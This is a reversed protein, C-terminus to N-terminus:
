MRPETIQGIIGIKANKILKVKIIEGKEPEVRRSREPSDVQVMFYRESRGFSDNELLIEATEGIFQERFKFRLEADLECLVQSRRKVVENNVTGQMSAAATGARKSFSFVHMKAFGTDKALEVTREFDEETEGPFGVIIDTTIAPRDLRNKILAVKERFEDATYQRCMRKLVANSGSQLSLHLHPMIKRNGCFTDLLRPTVDAPELSSLRIRALNPIEAMKDLLGALQDRKGNWNKRRVSEQGYAGLFIGTVVIEKHGADALAQAEQLVAEIPKNQVFPRVKPIICYSCFGDCGDQIKLFARTHGKFSTLKTLKLPEIRNKLKIKSGNEAKITNNQSNSAAAKGNLIQSLTAAVTERHSVLHINKGLNNLEDTKAVPLCGCVVIAADPSLKQAKRIHQRSKASATRTVCCTNIVVLDTKSKSTEAYSLGLRELLERIQQSEYQNVKCGVTHISFTKM